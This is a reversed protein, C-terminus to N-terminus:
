VLLFICERHTPSPPPAPPPAATDVVLFPMRPLRGLFQSAAAGNPLHHAPEGAPLHVVPERRPQSRTPGPGHYLITLTPKLGTAPTMSRDIGLPCARSTGFGRTHRPLRASVLQNRAPQDRSKAVPPLVVEWSHCVHTQFLYM